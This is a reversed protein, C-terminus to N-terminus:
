ERDAGLLVALEDMWHWEWKRSQAECNRKCEMKCKIDCNTLTNTQDSGCNSTPVTSTYTGRDVKTDQARATLLVGMVLVVGSLATAFKNSKM